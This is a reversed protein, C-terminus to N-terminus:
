LGADGCPMSVTVPVDPVVVGGDPLTPPEPM